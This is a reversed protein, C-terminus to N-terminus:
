EGFGLLSILGLDERCAPCLDRPEEGTSELFLEGLAAVPNQAGDDEDFKKGCNRCRPM